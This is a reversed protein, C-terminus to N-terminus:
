NKRVRRRATEGRAPHIRARVSIDPLIVAGQGEGQRLKPGLSFQRRKDSASRLYRAGRARGRALLSCVANIGSFSLDASILARSSRVTEFPLREGQITDATVSNETSLFSGAM